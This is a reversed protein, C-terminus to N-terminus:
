SASRLLVDHHTRARDMCKRVVELLINMDFPKKLYFALGVRKAKEAADSAGTMLVIPLNPYRVRITRVFEAPSAGALYYDLFVIAPTVAPISTLATAVNSAVIVQYGEHSLAAAMAGLIDSDDDIVLIPTIEEAMVDEGM